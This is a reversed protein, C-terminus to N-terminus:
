KQLRPGFGPGGGGAGWTKTPKTSTPKMLTHIQPPGDAPEDPVVILEGGKAAWREEVIRKANENMLKFGARAASRTKQPMMWALPGTWYDGQALICSTETLKEIEIYRLSKVWGRALTVTWALQAEPVWDYVVGEVTMPKLDGVQFTFRLKEGIAIKGSAESYIGSWEPWKAIDYVLDWVERAPAAIGIRNELRFTM